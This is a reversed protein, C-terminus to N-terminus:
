ANNPVDYSFSVPVSESTAVYSGKGTIGTLEGIGSGPAISWSSRAGGSDYTGVHQIVFSGSKGAVTGKVLEMGVFSATGNASHSMLFEVFGEGLIAGQYAQSVKARTLKAGGEFEQYPKEDWATVKFTCNAETSM